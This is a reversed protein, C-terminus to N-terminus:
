PAEEYNRILVEGSQEAPRGLRTRPGRPLPIVNYGSFLDLMDPHSTTTIAWPICRKTARRLAKALREHDSFRFRSWSFHDHTLDRKGPQYPPDVFLFDEKTCAGISEEFDCCWLKAGRLQRSITRLCGEGVAWRRDQGGYGVNFQGRSNHRWMGKFCTRNLYLTRAAKRALDLENPDVARVSYYAKKSSPFERFYDWVERPYRRLGRYLDILEANADALLAERPKLAFFIAGGGVFPEVFRGKVTSREPLHKLLFDLIRQKGGPYRLFPVPAGNLLRTRAEPADEPVGDAQPRLNKEKLLKQLM